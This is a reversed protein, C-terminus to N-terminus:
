YDIKVELGSKKRYENLKEFLYDFLLICRLSNNKTGYGTDGGHLIAHRSFKSKLTKNHEFGELVTDEYYEKVNSDFVLVADEKNLVLPLKKRVNMDGTHNTGDALIGELQPLLTTISAYYMELKHAKIAQEIIPMRKKLWSFRKWKSVLYDLTEENYYEALVSPFQKVTEELGYKETFDAMKFILEAPVIDVPPFGTKKMIEKYNISDREFQKNLNALFEESYDLFNMNLGLKM